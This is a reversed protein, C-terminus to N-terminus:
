LLPTRTSTRCGALRNLGVHTAPQIVTPTTSPSSIIWTSCCSAWIRAFAADLHQVLAATCHQLIEQLHDSRTLAIAVDANLNGLRAREALAADAAQRETRDRLYATFVRPGFQAIATIVLEIPFPSGDQRQATVEIRNGMVRSEGTALFREFGQLAGRAVGPPIILESMVQGIVDARRYGFTKEAAPNFELIRGEHDITVVCDMASDLFHGADLRRRPVFRRGRAAM